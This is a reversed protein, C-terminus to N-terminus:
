PGSFLDTGKEPKERPNCIKKQNLIKVDEKQDM